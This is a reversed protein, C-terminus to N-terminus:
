SPSPRLLTLLLLLVACVHFGNRLMLGLVDGERGRRDSQKGRGRIRGRLPLKGLTGLRRPQPPPVSPAPQSPILALLLMMDNCLLLLADEADDGGEIKAEGKARSGM